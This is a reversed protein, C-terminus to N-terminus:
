ASVQGGAGPRAGGYRSVRVGSGAPPHGRGRVHETPASCATASSRRPAGQAWASRPCAPASSSRSACCTASPTPRCTRSRAAAPSTRPGATAAGRLGAPRPPLGVPQGADRRAPHGARRLGRVGPHDGARDARRAQHDRLRHRRQHATAYRGIPADVLRLPPAARHHHRVRRRDGASSATPTTCSPRSRGRASGPRTPRSSRRHGPRHPDPRHRVRHLCWRRDANSSTVFPYTGHDVDLLTAQGAEFLVTEGATSRPTSCWRRTPVMPRLARRLRM